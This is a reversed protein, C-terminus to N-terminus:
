SVAAEFPPEQNTSVLTFRPSQMNNIIARNLIRVIVFRAFYLSARTDCDFTFHVRYWRKKVQYWGVKVTLLVLGMPVTKGDCLTTVRLPFSM